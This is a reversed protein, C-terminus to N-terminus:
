NVLVVTTAETSIGLLSGCSAATTCIPVGSNTGINTVVGELTPKGAGNGCDDVTIQVAVLGEVSITSNGNGTLGDPPTLPVLVTQGVAAGSRFDIPSTPWQGCTTGGKTVGSVSTNGSSPLPLPNPSPSHLYGHFDASSSTVCGSEASTWRNDALLVTDGVALNSDPSAGPVPSPTGYPDVACAVFPAYSSLTPLGFAATALATERSHDSGVIQLLTTRHSNTTNVQVAFPGQWEKSSSCWQSPGSYPSIQPTASRDWNVFQATVPTGGNATGSATEARTAIDQVVGLIDSASYVKSGNAGGSVCAHFDSALMTAGATAATDAGAQIARQDVYSTGADVALGIIAVIAVAALAFLIAVQGSQRGRSSNMTSVENPLHDTSLNSGSPTSPQACAREPDCLQRRSANVASHTLPM